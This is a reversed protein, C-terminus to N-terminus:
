LRYQHYVESAARHLLTHRYVLARMDEAYGGGIVCAVPYGQAVCTSLVQMERRFLGTNTLALNASAIALTPIWERMMFCWIPSSNVSCIRCIAQWRKYIDEDEMGVPLPVDLHSTQKRSPFNDQCHM